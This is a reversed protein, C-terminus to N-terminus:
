SICFARRFHVAFERGKEGEGQGKAQADQKAHLRRVELLDDVELLVDDGIGALGGQLVHLDQGLLLVALGLAVIGLAAFEMVIHSGGYSMFPLPIGMVPMLGITMAINVFVHVTFLVTVGIALLTEYDPLTM